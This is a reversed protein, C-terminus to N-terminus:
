SSVNEHLASGDAPPRRVRDIALATLLVVATALAAGGVTDTAYHFSLAVLAVAVTGAALLAAVAISARVRRSLRTGPPNVMLVAVTVALAFAGTAHGSPYSVGGTLTRHVLPQLLLKTLASAVPVAIAVLAAGRRNRTALCGALLAVAITVVPVPDGIHVVLNLPVAYEGLLARVVGDVTRDLRGARSQDTYRAGLAATVLVCVALLTGALRGAAGPLLRM